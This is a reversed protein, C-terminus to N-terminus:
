ATRLDEMKDKIVEALHDEKEMVARRYILQYLNLLWNRREDSPREQYSSEAQFLLSLDRSIYDKKSQKHYFDELYIMIFPFVSLLTLFTFVMAITSDKGVTFITGLTATLAVSILGIDKKSIEGTIELGMLSM